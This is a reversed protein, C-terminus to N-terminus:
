ASGGHLAIYRSEEGHRSRRFSIIRRATGRQTWVVTYFKDDRVRGITLFREETETRAPISIVPRGDFLVRADRFDLGHKTLNLARKGEDWEFM